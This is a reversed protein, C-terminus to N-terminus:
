SYKGRQTWPGNEAHELHRSSQSVSSGPLSTSPSSSTPLWTSDIWKRYEDVEVPIQVIEGLLSPCMPTPRDRCVMSMHLRNFAHEFSQKVQLFGYCGKSANEEPNLPDSIYLLRTDGRGNSGLMQDKAFYYGGDNVSIGVKMHNFNRGYLEFFEILLVGLNGDSNVDRRPHHQFFSVLMLVLSYSNIGGYFVENLQRQTLFQKIVLLLIPLQPYQTKFESVLEVCRIGHMQNFAIDVKVETERDTFKIIPVPAKDLVLLSDESAINAKRFEEEFSFLPPKQWEGLLMIDVDSTPVYLDLPVSGFAQVTVNPWKKVVIRRVREVVEMRMLEESKRPKIYEYFDLIEKHLGQPNCTYEKKRWPICTATNVGSLRKRRSVRSTITISPSVGEGGHANSDLSLFDADKELNQWTSSAQTPQQLTTASM